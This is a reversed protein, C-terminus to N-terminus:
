GSKKRAEWDKFRQLSRGDKIEKEVWDKLSDRTATLAHLWTGSQHKHYDDFSDKAIQNLPAKLHALLAFRYCTWALADTCQLAPIDQRRRFAYNTYRGALGAECAEYEAQAMVTEIETKAERQTKSDMWDYIYEFPLVVNSYAGWKDVLDLMNRMAWTYHYRDAYELVGIVCEDYDSKKIALSFGKLGFKKGFQRVRSIVRLQKEDDWGAFQSKENRAVCVSMHFDGFGEKETFSTWERDLATIRSAPMILVSAIAVQQKPDTGSDDIYVRFMALFVDKWRAGRDLLLQVTRSALQSKVCM